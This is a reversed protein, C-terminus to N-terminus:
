VELCNSGPEYELFRSLSRIGVDIDRTYGAAALVDESIFGEVQAGLPREHLKQAEHLSVLLLRFVPVGM